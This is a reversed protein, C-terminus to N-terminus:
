RAEGDCPPRGTGGNNQQLAIAVLICRRTLAPAFLSAAVLADAATDRNMPIRLLHFAVIQLSHPFRCWPPSGATTSLQELADHERATLSYPNDAMHATSSLWSHIAQRHAWTRTLLECAADFFGQYLLLGRGGRPVADELERLREPPWNHFPALPGGPFFRGDSVEQYDQRESPESGESGEGEGITEGPEEEAPPSACIWGTHHHWRRATAHDDRGIPDFVAGAIPDALWLRDRTEGAIGTPPSALIGPLLALRHRRSGGSDDGANGIWQEAWREAVRDSHALELQLLRDRLRQQAPSSLAAEYLVDLVAGVEDLIRGAAANELQPLPGRGALELELAHLPRSQDLGDLHRQLDAYTGIDVTGVNPGDAQPRTPPPAWPDRIALKLLYPGPPLDGDFLIECAGEASDDVPVCTPDQWPRHCSWLRVERGRFRRNETWHLAVLTEEAETDAISDCRLDSVVHAAEIRALEEDIEDALLRLGLREAGADRATDLFPALPISALGDPGRTDTEDSQLSHGFASLVLAVNEHRRLRVVVSECEGSMLDDMGIRITKAAFATPTQDRRRVTWLLRPISVRVELDAGDPDVRVVRTDCDGPYVLTHETCGDSDLAVDAKIRVELEEGPPIVRDPLPVTLGPVVAFESRLDSGLPGLVELSGTCAAGAPFVPSADYAGNRLGLEALTRAESHDASRFRIQWSHPSSDGLEVRLAPPREYIRQGDGTTVGRIPEGLVVPRAASAAVPVWECIEGQGVDPQAPVRVCIGSLDSLDLARLRWGSWDGALPPLDEFEHVASASDDGLDFSTAAPTLALVRAGRLSTQNSLLEGDEDFFYVRATSMGEFTWTWSRGSVSSHCEVVWPSHRALRLERSEHPSIPVRRVEGRDDKLTWRGQLNQARGLVLHPGSGDYRDVYVRPRPPRPGRHVPEHSGGLLEAVLYRPLRADHALSEAGRECTGAMGLEAVDEALRWMRAVLDDAFATGHRLFRAAPRDLGPYDRFRMDWLFHGADTQGSRMGALLAEWVDPACYAPIGGHLLIPAVFRLAREASVVHEFTELGLRRLATEFARGIEAQDNQDILSALTLEPWFSGGRYRHVGEAVLFVVIPAPWMNGLAHWSRSLILRRAASAAMLYIDGDLALDLEGVLRVESLRGRLDRDIEVADIGHWPNEDIGNM